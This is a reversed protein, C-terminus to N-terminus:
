VLMAGFRKGGLIHAHFHPVEQLSNPGSNCILRFGDGTAGVLEAVRSVARWFGAIEEASAQAGFDDVAVYKGKPIVLVHIPAQPRIDNFALAFEDEYIPKAPIEGRLIKAFVNNDDYAM